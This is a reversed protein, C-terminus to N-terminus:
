RAAVAGQRGPRLRSLDAAPPADADLLTVARLLEGVSWAQFPCGGPTHPADGDAVESVHGIGAEDLHGLLPEICTARIETRVAPTDGETRLWAEVLPGILWPWVTGQHYAGDREVPGGAYRGRYGPDDPSLSRLGMPTLLLRKVTALIERGRGNEVVPFPLGGVAFIQNPRVSADVKGSVGDADLVDYLCGREANWFRAGFAAVGRRYPLAWGADLSAGIRLANLWLAQVEVPKGIRPTVVWDGVRADMWTLQVGPVGARLLGDPDMGIGYRTGAAYGALIRRIAEVLTQRELGGARRGAGEAARLYEHVAVVYWLSADVSNFEPQDGQDVFRNPLMGESVAGAWQLLIRSAADLRGGALCIGRLAIFTDRGWDTFWPYGAVITEGSGRKVLYADAARHLRSPFAARRARETRELARFVSVPSGSLLREAGELGEAGLLWVAERGALDWGLLGPSLCDELHDFGRAEEEDLQFGRYWAPAHIYSGNFTSVVAPVSQYPQWRVREAGASADARGVPNEHHLAHADRGSLFPRVVLRLGRPANRARWRLAVVAAGRPVFLEATVELGGPLRHTWTPWPEAAFSVSDAPPGSTVGPAYRQSTLFERPPSTDGRLGPRELWADYGSVLAMRGTPPMTAALLLAHYRRTRPGAVTGSAFGGLGDPELWELTAKM